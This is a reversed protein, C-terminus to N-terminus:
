VGLSEDLHQHLANRISRLDNRAEATMFGRKILQTVETERLEITVCRLGERRRERHYRMRKAAASCTSAPIARGSVIDESM